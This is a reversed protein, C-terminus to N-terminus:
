DPQPPCFNSGTATAAWTKGDNQEYHCKTSSSPAEEQSCGPKQWAGLGGEAGAAHHESSLASSLARADDQRQVETM